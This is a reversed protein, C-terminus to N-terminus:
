HRLAGAGPLRQGAPAQLGAAERWSALQPEAAAYLLRWEEVEAQLQAERVELGRAVDVLDAVAAHDTDEDAADEDGDQWRDAEGGDAELLASAADLRDRLLRRVVGLRACTSALEAHAQAARLERQGWYSLLAQAQLTAATVVLRAPV